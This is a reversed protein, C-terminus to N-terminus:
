GALHLDSTQQLRDRGYGDTDSLHREPLARADQVRQLAENDLEGAEAFLSRRGEQRGGARRCLRLDDPVGDRIPQIGPTQDVRQRGNSRHKIPEYNDQGPQNYPQYPAM